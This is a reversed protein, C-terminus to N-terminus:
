KSPVPHNLAELKTLYEKYSNKLDAVVQIAPPLTRHGHYKRNAWAAEPGSESLGQSHADIFRASHDAYYRIYYILIFSLFKFPFMYKQILLDPVDNLCGIVNKEMQDIDIKKPTNRGDEPQPPVFDDEESDTIDLDDIDNQQPEPHSNEISKVKKGHSQLQSYSLYDEQTDKVEWNEEELGEHPM